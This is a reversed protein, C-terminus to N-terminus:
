ILYKKEEQISNFSKISKFFSILRVISNATKATSFEQEVVLFFDSTLPNLFNKWLVVAFNLPYKLASSSILTLM